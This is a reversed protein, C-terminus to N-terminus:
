IHALLLSYAQPQFNEVCALGSLSKVINGWGLLLSTLVFLILIIKNFKIKM